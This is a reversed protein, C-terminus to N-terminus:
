KLLENDDVTFANSADDNLYKKLCVTDYTSWKRRDICDFWIDEQEEIWDLKKMFAENHLEKPIVVVGSDDCVGISGDYYSKRQAIIKEDLGVESKTNFCGIPSGGTLWIPYNEKILHPLDRLKGMVVLAEVQRYLILYKSVLDGFIAREGCQFPETLLIVRSDVEAIQEHHEYNSENWAYTWKVLGVKFHGRNLPYVQPIDGTKNMCDAVETASIRNTRIKEIIKETYNSM